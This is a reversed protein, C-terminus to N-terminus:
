GTIGHVPNLKTGEMHDVAQEAALIDDPKSARSRNYVVRQTTDWADAKEADRSCLCGAQAGESLLRSYLNVYAVKTLIHIYGPGKPSRKCFVYNDRLGADKSSELFVPKGDIEGNLDLWREEKLPYRAYVSKLEPCTLDFAKNVQSATYKMKIAFLYHQIRRIDYIIPSLSNLDM